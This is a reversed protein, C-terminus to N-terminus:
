LFRRAYLGGRHSYNQGSLLTAGQANATPVARFPVGALSVGLAVILISFVRQWMALRRALQESQKVVARSLFAVAELFGLTSLGWGTPIVNQINLLVAEVFNIAILHPPSILKFIFYPLALM